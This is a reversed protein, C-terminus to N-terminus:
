RVDYKSFAFYILLYFILSYLVICIIDGISKSLSTALNLENYYFAQINKKNRNDAIFRMLSQHFHDEDNFGYNAINAAFLTFAGSPSLTNISTNNRVQKSIKDRFDFIIEKDKKYIEETKWEDSKTLNAFLINNRSDIKQEEVLTESPVPINIKSLISGINPIFFVLILWILFCFTISKRSSNSKTSVFVSIFFFVAIYILSIFFLILLRLNDSISFHVNPMLNLIIYFLFFSIGFPMAIVLFNGILKGFIITNRLVANSLMLKLTGKNKEGCILDFGAIMALFSLIVKIVYAFDLIPFLQRYFNLNVGYSLEFIDSNGTRYDFTRELIEQTGHVYISLVTPKKQIYSQNDELPKFGHSQLNDKYHKYMEFNSFGMLLVCAFLIIIFKYSKISELLEKIILIKLM